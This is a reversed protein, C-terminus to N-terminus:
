ICQGTMPHRKCGTPPADKGEVAEPGCQARVTVELLPKVCASLVMLFLLSLLLGSGIRLWERGRNM